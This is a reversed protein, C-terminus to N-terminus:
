FIVQIKLPANLTEVMQHLGAGRKEFCSKISIYNVKLATNMELTHCLWKTKYICM